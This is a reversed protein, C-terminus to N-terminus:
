ALFPELRPFIERKLYESMYYLLGDIQEIPPDRHEKVAINFGTDSHSHERVDAFSVGVPLRFRALETGDDLIGSALPVVLGDGSLGPGLVHYNGPYVSDYALVLHRHKDVNNLNRLSRLPNGGGWLSPHYPQLLEIAAQAQPSVFSIGQKKQVRKHFEAPSDCILFQIRKLEDYTFPRGTHRVSLAYTLTDLSSRMNHLADGVILSMSRPIEDYRRFRVVCDGTVADFGLGTRPHKRNLTFGGIAVKLAAIHEKARDLKERHDM